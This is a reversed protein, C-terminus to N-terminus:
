YFALIALVFYAAIHGPNLNDIFPFVAHLESSTQGSFYFILIM